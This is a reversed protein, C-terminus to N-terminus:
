GTQEVRYVEARYDKAPIIHPGMHGCVADDLLKMDEETFRHEFGLTKDEAAKMFRTTTVFGLQHARILIIFNRIDQGCSQTWLIEIAKGKLGWHDIWALLLVEPKKMREIQSAYNVLYTLAVAAKPNGDSLRILTDMMQERVIAM